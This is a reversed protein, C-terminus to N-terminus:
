PDCLGNEGLRGLHRFAFEFFEARFFFDFGDRTFADTSHLRPLDDYRLAGAFWLVRQRVIGVGGGSWM